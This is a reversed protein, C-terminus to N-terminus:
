QQRGSLGAVIHDTVFRKVARPSDLNVGIPPLLEFSLLVRVIWEGARAPAVGPGVEGRQQAAQVYPKWLEISRRMLDDGTNRLLLVVISENIGGPAIFDSQQRHACIVVAAAAVQDALSDYRSAEAAITEIFACALHDLAIRIANDRSGLANHVTGRSVGAREAVATLSFQRPGLLRLTETTAVLLTPSVTREPERM